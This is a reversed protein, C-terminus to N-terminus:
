VFKVRSRSGDRVVMLTNPVSDRIKPSHSVWIVQEFGLKKVLVNNVLSVFRDRNEEDFYADVEDLFLVRFDSNNKRMKIRTLAVRIAISLISKGGGSEMYFGYDKGDRLVRVQLEDKRRKLRPEDCAECESKRYNKPYVFGCSHCSKEWDKLEKDATFIVEMTTGFESLVYNIEEEIESFANEIEQSPIGNKSFVFAVYKLDDVVVSLERIDDSLLKIKQKLEKKHDIKGELSAKEYILNDIETELNRLEAKLDSTPDVENELDSLQSKLEGYQKTLSDRLKTLRPVEDPNVSESLADYTSKDKDYEVKAEELEKAKTYMIRLKGIKVKVEELDDKWKQLEKNSLQIRDCSEKLIPCLGNMESSNDIYGELELKKAKALQIANQYKESSTFEVDNYEDMRQKIKSLKFLTQEIQDLKAIAEARRQKIDLLKGKLEEKRDSVSTKSIKSINDRLEDAELKIKKVIEDIHAIKDNLNTPMSILDDELVSLKSKLESLKKSEIIYDNNAKAHIDGWYNNELWDMIYKKKEPAGLDMFRNINGQDFFLTMGLEKPTFGILKNIAEQALAKKDEFNVELIGERESVGRRIIHENEDDGLVVTCEGAQEGMHVLEFNTKARSEGTLAWKIAELFFSKGTQNSQRSNSRSKGMVGIIDKDYLDISAEKYPGLNKISISKIRM